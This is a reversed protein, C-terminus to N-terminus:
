PRAEHALPPPPAASQAAAASANRGAAISQATAELMFGEMRGLGQALGDMAKTVAKLDGGVQEVRLGLQYLADKTPLHDVVQRINRIDHKASKLDEGQVSVTQEIHSLRDEVSPTRRRRFGMALVLAVALLAGLLYFFQQDSVTTVLM